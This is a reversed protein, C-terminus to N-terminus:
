HLCHCNGTPQRDGHWLVNPVTGQEIVVMGVMHAFLLVGVFHRAHLAGDHVRWMSMRRTGKKKGRRGGRVQTRADEAAVTKDDGAKKDWRKPPRIRKNKRPTESQM